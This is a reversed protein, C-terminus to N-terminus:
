LHDEGVPVAGKRLACTDCTWDNLEGLLFQDLEPVYYMIRGVDHHHPVDPRKELRSLKWDMYIAAAPRDLWVPAPKVKAAALEAAQEVLAEFVEAPLTLAFAETM